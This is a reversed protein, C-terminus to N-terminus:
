KEDKIAKIIDNNHDEQINIKNSPEQKSELLNAEQEHNDVMKAVEFKNKLFEIQKNIKELIDEQEADKNEESIDNIEKIELEEFKIENSM